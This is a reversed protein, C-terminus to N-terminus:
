SGGRKDYQDGLMPRRKLKWSYGFVPLCLLGFIVACVIMVTLAATEKPSM